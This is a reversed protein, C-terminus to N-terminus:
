IYRRCPYVARPCFAPQWERGPELSAQPNYCPDDSIAVSWRDRLRRVEVSELSARGGAYHRGLSLSEYHVLEAEACYVIRWGAQGARLCFDVDNLAIAFGEDLGGLDHFVSARVLMCAATVATVDRTLRGIGHVGPDNPRRLRGAHECLDALGMIVGEHQVMGNGYLLRAGVIGVAPDAMHALMRDLWDTNVPVVDDNLLLLYDANRTLTAGRNNVAAYNFSQIPVPCIEVRGSGGLRRLVRAHARHPASLLLKIRFDKYTTGADVHRLCNAVRVSEALSPVLAVVRPM